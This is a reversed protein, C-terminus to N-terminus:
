PVRGITALPWYRASPLAAGVLVSVRSAAQASSLTMRLSLRVQSTKRPACTPAKVALTRLTAERFSATSKGDNM